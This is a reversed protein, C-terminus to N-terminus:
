EPTKQWALSVVWLIITKKNKKTQPQQRIADEGSAM